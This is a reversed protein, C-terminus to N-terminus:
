LKVLRLVERIGGSTIVLTYLGAASRALDIYATFEPTAPLEHWLHMRNGLGDYLELQLPMGIEVTCTVSTANQFPHPYAFAASGDRRTTPVGTWLPGGHLRAIGVDTGQATSSNGAILVADQSTIDMGSCKVSNSGVGFWFRVAGYSWPAGDGFSPDEVGDPSCRLAWCGQSGSSSNPRFHGAVVIAGSSQLGISSARDHGPNMSRRFLGDVGFTPVRSGQTDYRVVVMDESGTNSSWVYGAVLLDGNDMLTIARAACGLTFEQLDIVSGEDGFAQDLSGDAALRSLAFFQSSFGVLVVENDPTVAMALAGIPIAGTDSLGDQSFSGDLTGDAHLRVCRQEDMNTVLVTISGNHVNMAVVRDDGNSVPVVVRGGQGFGSEPVGADSLRFIAMDLDDGEFVAAAILCSGDPLIATGVPGQADMLLVGQNGFTEDLLGTQHYRAVFVGTDFATYSGTVLVKGDALAHVTSVNESGGSFDATLRGDDNWTSDLGVSQAKCFAISFVMVLGTLLPTRHKM